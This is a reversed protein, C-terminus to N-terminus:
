LIKAVRSLDIDGAINCGVRIIRARPKIEKILNEYSYAYSVGQLDPHITNILLDAMSISLIALPNHVDETAEAIVYDFLDRARRLFNKVRDPLLTLYTIPSNEIGPGAVYINKHEKAQVFYNELSGLDEKEFFRILSKGTAFGPLTFILQLSAYALNTSFLGTRYGDEALRYAINAILTSKGSSPKGYV